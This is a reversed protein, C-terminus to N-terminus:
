ALCPFCSGPLDDDPRARILGVVGQPKISRKKPLSATLEKRQELSIPDLIFERLIQYPNNKLSIHLLRGNGSSLLM